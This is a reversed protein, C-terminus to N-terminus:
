STVKRSNRQPTTSMIKREEMMMAEEWVDGVEEEENTDRRGRGPSRKSPSDLMKNNSSRTLANGLAVGTLQLSMASGLEPREKPETHGKSSGSSGMHGSADMASMESFCAWQNLFNLKWFRVKGDDGSSALLTGTINWDV